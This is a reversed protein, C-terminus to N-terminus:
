HTPLRNFFFCNLEFCNIEAPLIFTLFSVIFFTEFQIVKVVFYKISMYGFSINAGLSLNVMFIDVLNFM